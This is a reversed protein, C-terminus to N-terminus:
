LCVHNEKLEKWTFFTGEKCPLKGGCVCEGCMGIGCMTNKEMSMLIRDDSLGLEELKKAANEMMKGPGVVYARVDGSVSERDISDLVRGPKGDDAISRYKGYSSLVDELPDPGNSAQVIGVRIDMKAGLPKLREAILPLVAVGSGGAILLAKESYEIEMPKGYLGRTYVTDGEKLDFCSSTFEGRKKILFTLPNNRAISFPKEGKGPVWLFAFEGPHCDMTGSLTLILIDESHKKAELVKHSTYILKNETSVFTRADRNLKIAKFYAEWKSPEVRSLASGIGVSDAGADIMKRADKEDTVGGMGLIIPEDGLAERIEKIADIARDFVWEGSAGGKGGLKNNLIPTESEENIYLKPGVTNIAAVGDAGADVVAKAIEGINDVNPSLKVILLAKRDPCASVIKETYERAVNIDTGISAGFGGLAHPCSFNLELMDAVSDFRKVLTVFDDPNSAALSINLIARMGKDKLAKLEPWAVDMGPNRLGVSNGFDGTSPSCVVPERNGSTAVVQFSKTTIVDVSPIKEDFLEVLETKTTAVGSVTALIMNKRNHNGRLLADARNM